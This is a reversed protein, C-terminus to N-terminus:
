TETEEDTEMRKHTWCMFRLKCDACGKYNDEKGKSRCAGLLSDIVKDDLDIELKDQAM